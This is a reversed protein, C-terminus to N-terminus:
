KRLSAKSFVCEPIEADLDISDIKLTTGKGKTNLIDKYFIEYPYWRDKVKRIDSFEVRKLLTGSEGYLEEKLPMYIDKAVWLKRQYYTTGAEKAILKLVWCTRDLLTEEGEIVATYRDQYINEEMFDEYSLDSGNVSQRLLHGSMQITRDSNKDYIWLKDGLKLMKTGAERPPSLYETFSDSSGHSWTRTAIERSGRRGEIVMRSSIIQSDSYLNDDIRRLIEDATESWLGASILIMLVTLIVTKM